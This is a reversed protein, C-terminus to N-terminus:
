HDEKNSNLKSYIDPMIETPVFESIDAKYSAAEKVISSSLYSYKGRTMMFMTEIDPALKRNIHAMQLEYEFDTIARLGKVIVSANKERAYDVLLGDFSDVEINPIDGTVRKLLEIREPVTFLPNHKGSNSLVTVYVIDFIKSARKIIDLHGFTVPDFSGPIVATKM